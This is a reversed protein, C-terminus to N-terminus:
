VKCLSDFLMKLVLLIRIFRQPVPHVDQPVTGHLQAVITDSLRARVAAALLVEQERGVGPPWALWALRRPFM